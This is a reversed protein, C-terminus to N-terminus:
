YRLSRTVTRILAAINDVEMKEMVRARHLEVTKAALGLEAGIQKSTRGRVLMEMVRQERATLRARRLASAARQERTQEGRAAVVLAQQIRDLLVQDSFPKEFFDFAGSKMARVATAVEAHGAVFIVPLHAGRANLDAHLDLGSAGELRVNAVVCGTWAAVCADLLQESTAYTEVNLGVSEVLTRLTERAVPDDDVVYVTFDSVM